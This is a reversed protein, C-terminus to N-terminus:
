ATGAPRPPRATRSSGPGPPSASPWSPPGAPATGTPTRPDPRRPRWSPAHRGCRAAVMVAVMIDACRRAVVDAEVVDGAVVDGAVVDAPEVVDAAPATSAPGDQGGRM